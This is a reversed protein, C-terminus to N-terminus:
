PVSAHQVVHMTNLGLKRQQAEISGPHARSSLKTLPLATYWMASRVSHAPMIRQANGTYFGLHIHEGWYYELVGDNTWSDYEDGVNEKYTRSPTDFVKKIIFFLVVIGAIVALGNLPVPLSSASPSSSGPLEACVQYIPQQPRVSHAKFSHELLHKGIACPRIGRQRKASTRCSASPKQATFAKHLPRCSCSTPIHASLRGQLRQM